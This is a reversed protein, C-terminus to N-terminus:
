LTKGTVKQGAQKKKTRLEKFFDSLMRSCEKELVGPFINPKHNFELKSLDTVSGFSGAKLDYAGFYVNNIRSNIIAGACMPCPELTVYIDCGCLRWGGLKKCASNIASIEAHCLANKNTERRNRGGAIIKGDKVIVAGVPTETHAAATKARGMAARMFYEHTKANGIKGTKVAVKETPKEKATETMKKSM